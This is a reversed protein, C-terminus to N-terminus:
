TFQFFRNAVGSKFDTLTKMTKMESFSAPEFFLLTQCLAM